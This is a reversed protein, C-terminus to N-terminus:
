QPVHSSLTWNETRCINRQVQGFQVKAVRPPLSDLLIVYKRCSSLRCYITMLSDHLYRVLGRVYRTHMFLLFQWYMTRGRSTFLTMQYAHFLATAKDWWELPHSIRMAPDDREVWQSQADLELYRGKVCSALHYIGIGYERLIRINPLGEQNRYNKDIIQKPAKSADRGIHEPTESSKLEILVASGKKKSILHTDIYGSGAHLSGLGETPPFAHHWPLLRSLHERSNQSQRHRTGQRSDESWSLFRGSNRLTDRWVCM